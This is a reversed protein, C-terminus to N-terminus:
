FKVEDPLIVTFEIEVLHEPNVLNSVEVMTSAPKIHKFYEGHAKGIDKWLSIDTTYMRTRVVYKLKGGLTKIAKEAKKIIYVTQGYADNECVVKGSEDSATTGAIEIINGVRVGRSYGVIDEWPTNSSIKRM